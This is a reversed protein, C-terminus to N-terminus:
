PHQEGQRPRRAPQGGGRAAVMIAAMRMTWRTSTTSPTGEAAISDFLELSVTRATPAWVRLTPVGAELSVGLLWRPDPKLFGRM